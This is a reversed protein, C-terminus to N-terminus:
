KKGALRDREKKVEDEFPVKTGSSLDYLLAAGNGAHVAVVLGNPSFSTLTPSQSKIRYKLQGSSLDWFNISHPLKGGWTALLAGDTSFALDAFEIAEFGGRLTGKEVDWITVRRIDGAVEDTTALLKGDPSFACQAGLNHEGGGPHLPRCTKWDGVKWLVLKGPDPTKPKNVRGDEFHQTLLWKGDPSFMLYKNAACELTQVLKGSPLEWVLVQYNAAQALFRNDPSFTVTVSEEAGVKPPSERVVQKKTKLSWVEV